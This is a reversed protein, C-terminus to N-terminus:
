QTWGLRDSIRVETGTSNTIPLVAIVRDNDATIYYDDETLEYCGEADSFLESTVTVASECQDESSEEQLKRATESTPVSRIEFLDAQLMLPTEFLRNTRETLASRWNAEPKAEVSPVHPHQM